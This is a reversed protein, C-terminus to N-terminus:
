GGARIQGNQVIWKSGDSLTYVGDAQGKLAQQVAASVPQPAGGGAPGAGSMRGGGSTINQTQTPQDVFKRFDL